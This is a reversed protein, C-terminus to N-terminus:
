GCPQEHVIDFMDRFRIINSDAPIEFEELARCFEGDCQKPFGLKRYWFEIIPITDM